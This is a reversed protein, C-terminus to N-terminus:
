GSELASCGGKHWGTAWSCKWNRRFEQGTCRSAEETGGSQPGRCGVCGLLALIEAIFGNGVTANRVRVTAKRIVKLGGPFGRVM